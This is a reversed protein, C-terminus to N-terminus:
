ATKEAMDAVHTDGVPVENVGSRNAKGAGKGTATKSGSERVFVDAVRQAFEAEDISITDGVERTKGDSGVHPFTVQAKIM